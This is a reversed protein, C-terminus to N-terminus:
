KPNTSANVPEQPDPKWYKVADRATVVHLVTRKGSDMPTAIAQMGIETFLADLLSVAQDVNLPEPISISTRTAVVEGDAVVLGFQDSMEQLIESVPKDVFQVRVTKSKDVGPWTSPQVSRPLRTNPQELLSKKAQAIPWAVLVPELDNKGPNRRSTLEIVMGDPELQKNLSAVADGVNAIGSPDLTLRDHFTIRSAGANNVVAIGSRTGLEALVDALPADTFDIPQTRAPSSDLQVPQITLSAKGEAVKVSLGLGKVNLLTNVIEVMEIASVPDRSVLTVQESVESKQVEFGFRKGMDDLINSMPVNLYKLELTRDKAVGPIEAPNKLDPRALVGYRWTRMSEPHEVTPRRSVTLVMLSEPTRNKDPPTSSQWMRYGKEWLAQNFLLAGENADVPGDSTVTLRAQIPEPFMVILNLKRAFTNLILGAPMDHFDLLMKSPSPASSPTTQAFLSAAVAFLALASLHYIKMSYGAKK